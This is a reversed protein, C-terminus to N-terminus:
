PLVIAYEILERRRKQEEDDHPRAGFHEELVIIRPLLNDVKNNVTVSEQVHNTLSPRHTSPQLHVKPDGPVTYIAGLIARIRGFKGQGPTLPFHAACGCRYEPRGSSAVAPDGEIGGIGRVHSDLLAYLNLNDNTAVALVILM